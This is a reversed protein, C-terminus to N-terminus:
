LEHKKIHSHNHTHFELLSKVTTQFQYYCLLYMKMIKKKPQM